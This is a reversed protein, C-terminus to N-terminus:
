NTHSEHSEIQDESDHTGGSHSDHVTREVGLVAAASDCYAADAATNFSDGPCLARSLDGAPVINSGTHAVYSGAGDPIGFHSVRKIAENANITGFYCWALTSICNDSIGQFLDRNWAGFWDTHGTIGGQLISGDPQVDSSIYWDNTIAERNNSAYEIFVEIAPLEVTGAPCAGSWFGAPPYQLQSTNNIADDADGSLCYPMFIHNRLWYGPPCNPITPGTGSTVQNAGGTVIGGYCDWKSVRGVMPDNYANGDPAGGIFGLNEPFVAQALNQGNAGGSHSKYYLTINSPIRVNGDADFVAPAWYATRNGELGACTSSGNNLLSDYTSHANTLTNGFFMHLHAVGPQGPFIIPDDYAFHSFACQTVFQGLQKNTGVFNGTGHSASHISTRGGPELFESRPIDASPTNVWQTRADVNTNRFPFDQRSALGGTEIPGEGGGTSGFQIYEGGEASASDVLTVNDGSLRVPVTGNVASVGAVFLLSVVVFLALGKISTKNKVM